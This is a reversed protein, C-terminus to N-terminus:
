TELINRYYRARHDQSAVVLLIFGEKPAHDEGFFIPVSEGSRRPMTSEAPKTGGVDYRDFVPLPNFYFLGLEHAGGHLAHWKFAGPRVVIAQAPGYGLFGRGKFYKPKRSYV